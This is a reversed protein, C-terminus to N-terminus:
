RRRRRKGTVIRAVIDSGADQLMGNVEPRTDELARKMFHVGEFGGPEASARYIGGPLALARAAVVGAMGRKALRKNAKRQKRGAVVQHKKVGLEILNAHRAGRGGALVEGGLKSRYVGAKVSAALVGRRVPVRRKAVDRIRLVAREIADGLEPRVPDDGLRQGLEKAGQVNIFIDSM